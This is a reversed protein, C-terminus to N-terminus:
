QMRALQEPRQGVAELNELVFRKRKLFRIKRVLLLPRTEISWLLLQVSLEIKALLQRTGLKHTHGHLDRYTGACPRM